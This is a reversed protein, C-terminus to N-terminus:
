AAARRSFADTIGRWHEDCLFVDGVPAPEFRQTGQRFRTSGTPLGDLKCRLKGPKVCLGCTM